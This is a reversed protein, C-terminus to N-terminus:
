KTKKISDPIVRAFGSDDTMTQYQIKQGVVDKETDFGKEIDIGMHQLFKGMGSQDSPNEYYPYGFKVTQNDMDDVSVKFDIYVVEKNQYETKRIEEEEITGTHVGDPIKKGKVLKGKVMKENM